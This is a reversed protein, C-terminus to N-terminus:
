PVPTTLPKGKEVIYTAIVTATDSGGNVGNHVTGAPILFVDGAKLKRSPKGDVELVLTGSLVYSVEEGPHTHRGTAGGTPIEGKGMIAERGPTSLDGRQLETRKITPQQAGLMVVTTMMMFVASSRLTLIRQM